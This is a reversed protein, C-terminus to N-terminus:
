GPLNIHRRDLLVSGASDLTRFLIPLDASSEKGALSGGAFPSTQLVAGITLTKFRTSTAHAPLTSCLAEADVLASDVPLQALADSLRPM